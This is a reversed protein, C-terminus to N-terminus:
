YKPGGLRLLRQGYTWRGSPLASVYGNIELTKLARMVFDRTFGTRSQIRKFEVPRGDEPEIAELVRFSKSVSEIEYSESPRKNRTTM